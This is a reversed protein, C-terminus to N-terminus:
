TSKIAESMLSEKIKAWEQQAWEAAEDFLHAPELGPHRWRGTGAHKSSVMRFTMINREVSKKGQKDTVEKQYIRIGQLFPIGTPGQKVAGIPGKGQGPGEHTKNYGTNIDFKHLLGLKPKGDPNREITGYGIKNDPNKKNHNRLFSKVTGVLDQEAVTSQTPGKNHKFPVALYKSGDAAQKAKPSKLLDNIMEHPEVGDEIWRAKRDLNILWTDENVQKFSLSDIFQKRRTKLKTSALEIAKAHTAAALQGAAKKVAAQLASPLAGMKLIDDVNMDINVISM